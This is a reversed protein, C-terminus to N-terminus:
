LETVRGEQTAEIHHIVTSFRLTERSDKKIVQNYEIFVPDLEM